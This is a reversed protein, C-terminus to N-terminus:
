CGSRGNGNIRALERECEMEQILRHVGTSTEKLCIAAWLVGVFGAVLLGLFM